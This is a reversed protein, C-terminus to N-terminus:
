RQSVPVEFTLADHMVHFHPSQTRTEMLILANLGNRLSTAPFSIQSYSCKAHIGERLLANGGHVKPDLTHFPKSENNM